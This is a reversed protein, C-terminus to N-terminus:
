GTCIEVPSAVLLVAVILMRYSVTPAGILAGVTLPPAPVSQGGSESMRAVTNDFILARLCVGSTSMIATAAKACSGWSNTRREM